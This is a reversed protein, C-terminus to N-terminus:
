LFHFFNRSGGGFDYGSWFNIVEEKDWVGGMWWSERNRLKQTITRVNICVSLCVCLCVSGFVNGGQRLYSHSVIRSGMPM